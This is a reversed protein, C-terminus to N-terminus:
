KRWLVAPIITAGIFVSYARTSPFFGLDGGEDFVLWPRPSQSIAFLLGADRAAVPSANTFTYGEIMVAFPAVVNVSLALAAFEQPLPRDEIRWLNLGVNLDAHVPGIDKTMYGTFLGDYTRLYGARRFTPISAAASVSLSPRAATQDLLHFKAGVTLDDLYQAPVEGRSLTYGNSGVQLQLAETFTQKLLVPFTWLRGKSAIRRFLIGGEVEFAGPPVIDATCAITPRCPLAHDRGDPLEASAWGPHHVVAVVIAAVFSQALAFSTRARRAVHEM